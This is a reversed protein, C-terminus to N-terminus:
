SLVEIMFNQDLHSLSPSQKLGADQAKIVLMQEFIKNAVFISAVAIQSANKAYLDQHHLAMKALYISILELLKRQTHNKLVPISEFISTIFEFATPAGVLYSLSKLIELEWNKIVEEPIKSHGIKNFVTKMLLPKVDEYKSAMFM